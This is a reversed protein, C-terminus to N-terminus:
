QQGSSKIASDTDHVNGRPSSWHVRCASDRVFHFAAHAADPAAFVAEVKEGPEVRDFRFLKEDVYTRVLLTVDVAPTLGTNRLWVTPASDPALANWSASWRVLEFERQREDIRTQLDLADKSRMNAVLAIVASVAAVGVAVVAIVDSADM